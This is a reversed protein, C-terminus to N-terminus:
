GNSIAEFNPVNDNAVARYMFPSNVATWTVVPKGDSRLHYHIGQLKLQKIQASAKTYGTLDILQQETLMENLIAAM